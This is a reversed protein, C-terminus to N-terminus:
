VIIDRSLTQSAHLLIWEEKYFPLDPSYRLENHLEKKRLAKRHLMQLYWRRFYKTGLFVEQFHWVKRWEELSTFPLPNHYCYLVQCNPLSPLTILQNHSCYLIQCHPLPSGLTTLRNGNCYLHQCQPLPPLITM